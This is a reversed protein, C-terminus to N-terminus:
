RPDTRPELLRDPQDDVREARNVDRGFLQHDLRVRRLSRNALHVWAEHERIERFIQGIRLAHRQPLVTVQVDGIALGPAEIAEASWRRRSQARRWPEGGRAHYPEGSSGVCTS